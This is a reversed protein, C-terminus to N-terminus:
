RAPGLPCWGAAPRLGYACARACQGTVIDVLEGAGCDDDTLPNTAVCTAPGLGGSPRVCTGGAGCDASTACLKQCVAIGAAQAFGAPCAAGSGPQAAPV